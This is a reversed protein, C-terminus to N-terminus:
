QLACRTAAQGLQHTQRQKLQESRFVSGQVSTALSDATGMALKQFYRKANVSDTCDACIALPIIRFTM